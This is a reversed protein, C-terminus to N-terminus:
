CLRFISGGVLYPPQQYEASRNAESMLAKREMLFSLPKHEAFLAV